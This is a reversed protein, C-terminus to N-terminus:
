TANDVGRMRRIWRELTARPQVGPVLLGSELLWAPTATVGVERAGAMSREVAHSGSGDALMARLEEVPVGAAEARDDVVAPDGLDDGDVFVARFLSDDFGDFSAPWHQRVMEAAELAQRTNPVTRPPEFPMGLEACEVAIRAFVQSLRGGSRVPSGGPPIEPHLDFPLPTVDVGLEELLKTRDRGLYCWPCLYDSWLTARM